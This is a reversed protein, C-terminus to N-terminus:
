AMDIRLLTVDDNKLAGSTRLERIWQPFGKSFDRTGIDRLARWPSVGREHGELFWCALADTMLFFRDDSQWQGGYQKISDLARLNREPESCLLLPRSSFQSSASLPCAFVLQEGRVQFLCSDGLALCSWNGAGARDEEELSVGLITSFAGVRLKEAVYWPAPRYKM